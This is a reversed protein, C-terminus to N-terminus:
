KQWKNIDRIRYFGFLTRKWIRDSIREICVQGEDPIHLFENLDWLVIGIHCMVPKGLMRFGVICYREPAEIKECYQWFEEELYNFDKLRWEEDYKYEPIVANFEERYFLQFLGYCDIGNFDRGEHKYPIGLYKVIDIKKSGSYL